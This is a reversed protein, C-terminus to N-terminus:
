PSMEPFVIKTGKCSAIGSVHCTGDGNSTFELGKSPKTPVLEQNDNCGVLSLPISLLLIMLLCSFKKM